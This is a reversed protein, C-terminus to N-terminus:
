VNLQTELTRICVFLLLFIMSNIKKGNLKLNEEGLKNSLEATKNLPHKLLLENLYVSFHRM